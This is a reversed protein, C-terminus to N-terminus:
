KRVIYCVSECWGFVCSTSHLFRAAASHTMFFTSSHLFRAAASHTMHLLIYFALLRSVAAHMDELDVAQVLVECLVEQDVGGVCKCCSPEITASLAKRWRQRV